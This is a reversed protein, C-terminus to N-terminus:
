KIKIIQEKLIPLNEKLIKWVREQIIGFYAHTLIDRFGAIDKWPVNPYKSRFFDPINKVAEGVIGLQREIASQRLRDRLFNEKSLKKSFNEINEIGDLIDQIFLKLERKM